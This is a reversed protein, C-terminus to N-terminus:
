NLQVNAEKLVTGWRSYEQAFFRSFAAPNEMTEPVVAINTLQQQVAPDAVVKKLGDNLRDLVAQPTGAPAFVGVWNVVNFDKLVEQATPLDPLFSVRAASTVALANLRGDKILPYLPPIDMVIGDVHGALTDTVAPGAGKYPVHTINAGSAKKLLEITLHPLGGTGSSSLTIANKSAHDLLEKLSKVKLAPGTAIAEPTQGVMNVPAFDKVADFPQKSMTQPSLVVPSVSTLFLTYGDPKSNIVHSAGITGGAGAKNEVVVTGKLVEALKPAIIRAVMDNSGGPPYGVVMNIPRSPYNDALVAGSALSGLALSAMLLRRGINPTFPRQTAHM